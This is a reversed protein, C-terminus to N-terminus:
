KQRKCSYGSANMNKEITDMDQGNAYQPNTGGAEAYAADLGDADLNVYVFAQREILKGESYDCSVTVGDVSGTASKLKKCRDALEDLTKADLSPDGKTTITYDLKDLKNDTFAFVLKYSKDLNTTNTDFECVLRGTTIVTEGGEVNGSKFKNILTTINPLFIVFGILFVFFLILAVTKGKSPPTYNVEVKKLNENVASNPDNVEPHPSINGIVGPDTTRDVFNPDVTKEEIQIPGESVAPTAPASPTSSVATPDVVTPLEQTVQQGTNTVNEPTVNNNESNNDM